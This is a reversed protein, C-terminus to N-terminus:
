TGTVSVKPPFLDSISTGLHTAEIAVGLLTSIDIVGVNTTHQAITNTVAIKLNNEKIIDLAPGSLVGHTACINISKAGATRLAKVCSSITRCTDILDDIVLCDRGEVNGIINLVEAENHNPRRKDIIALPANNFYNSMRRARSVGGIDPSVMTLNTPNLCVLNESLLKSAYLNDVPINFFGQIPASHLDVTIIRDAGASEIMKAVVSASIPVRSMEKRDQRAYGYYPIVCTIRDASSRRAADIMLMMEMISDNVPNNLSQIIYVDGNRISSTIQLFIEGDSFKKIRVINEEPVGNLKQIPALLHIGNTGAFIHPKM